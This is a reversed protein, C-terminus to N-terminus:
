PTAVSELAAIRRELSEILALCNPTVGLAHCQEAVRHEERANWEAFKAEQFALLEDAYDEFGEIAGLDDVLDYAPDAAWQRKLREVEARTARERM